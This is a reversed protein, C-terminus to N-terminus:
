ISRPLYFFVAGFCGAPNVKMAAERVNSPVSRRLRGFARPKLGIRARGRV